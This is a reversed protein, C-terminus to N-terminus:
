RAANGAAKKTRILRVVAPRPPGTGPLVHPATPSLARRRLNRFMSNMWPIDLFQHLVSEDKSLRGPRSEKTTQSNLLQKHQKGYVYINKNNVM